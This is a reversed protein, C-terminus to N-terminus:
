IEGPFNLICKKEKDEGLNEIELILKKLFEDETLEKRHFQRKIRGNKIFLIRECYSAALMDHTAMLITMKYEKNLLLMMNMVTRTSNKDLAGTPEDALILQPNTVIARACACRQRQGGSVEHPFKNLVESIGIQSGIDQVIQNIKKKNYKKIILALAINEYITLNDLLNYEQFIFGLNHKRYKAKESESYNTIDRGAVFIKGSSVVDVTSVLNLLTSKGSASDGMIGVFEGKKIEFNIDTLANTTKEGTDYSKYVNKLYVFEKELNM